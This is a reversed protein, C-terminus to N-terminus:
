RDRDHSRQFRHNKLSESDNRLQVKSHDVIQATSTPRFGANQELSLGLIMAVICPGDFPKTLIVRRDNGGDGPQAPRHLVLGLPLKRIDFWAVDMRPLMTRFKRGHTLIGTKQFQFLFSGVLGICM